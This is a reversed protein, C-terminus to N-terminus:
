ACPLPREGRERARKAERNCRIRRVTEVNNRAAEANNRQQEAAYLPANDRRRQQNLMCRTYEKGRDAGIRECTRSDEREASRGWDIQASADGAVGVGLLAAIAVLATRYLGIPRQSARRYGTPTSIRM